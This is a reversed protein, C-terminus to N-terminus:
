HVSQVIELMQDQTIGNTLKISYSYGRAQWVALVYQDQDGKITVNIDDSTISIVSTYQDYDGSVDEDGASM